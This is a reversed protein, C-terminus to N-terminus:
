KLLFDDHPWTERSTGLVLIRPKMGKSVNNQM